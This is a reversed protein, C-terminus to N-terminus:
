SHQEKHPRKRKRQRPISAQKGRSRDDKCLVKSRNLIHSDVEMSVISQAQRDGYVACQERPGLGLNWSLMVVGGEGAQWVYESVEEWLQGQLHPYSTSISIEMSCVKPTLHTIPPQIIQFLPQAQAQYFCDVLFTNISSNHLEPWIQVTTM